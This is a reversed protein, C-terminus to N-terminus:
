RRQWDFPCRPLEHRLTGNESISSLIV